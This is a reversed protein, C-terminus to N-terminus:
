AIREEHLVSKLDARNERVSPWALLLLELLLCALVGFMVWRWLDTGYLQARRLGAAGAQVSELSRVSGSRQRLQAETASLLQSEDAPGNVALPIEWLKAELGEQSAQPGRAATVRYIGRRTRNGVTIGWREPGLPDVTLLEEQGDPRKLTFRAAREAASVPLVLEPPETSMNRRPLTEQLMRRLIRDFLLVTNTLSLTNWDSSVGTTVLLVQGRGLRRRVMYPLGNTYRALVKPRSREALEAAPTQGSENVSEEAGPWRLWNPKLRDRQRKLDAQQQRDAASLKEKRELEDLEALRREIEALSRRHHDIEDAVATVMAEQVQDSTDAAVAKFFYPLRYLDELEERSTAELLFYSDVLSDFDLQFPEARGPAEEPLGGVAVPDLPAPLIGLGQLWAAETWLAPDFFGGAAIVLNGGQDVYERLLSVVGQPSSVGAIVVLRADELLERSLQDIKVHRVQVLQRGRLTRSTVPALLRRLHFTQGYRNRRPDEDQGYQDVFVVPLAAVVPVVLFRRDDAPLRDPPISVEATAFAPKGGSTSVDFRYPPFQVEREGSPILEVTEAAITVSDVALTVQVGHRPVSGTYCITAVFVAPTQLDAVGDRLKFDSIWANEPEEPAVEVVQMPSPLQRLHEGLSEAPWRSVQQDTLLIVQKSPMTPVRRCAELALDITEHARAARDVPEIAAVAEAADETTYYAEYSFGTASGCIPLVSIRSGRPYGEILEKARTKVDDLLTGDLKEYGMSLSNDVLLVAHVPQGSDVATASSGLFPRAMAVGFGVISLTRLALLLLDRLQMIRYSRVIAERLFDMAAWEVVRPRRRNLLHILIPGAAAVLGAIAFWPALFM